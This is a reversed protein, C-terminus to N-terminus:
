VANGGVLQKGVQAAIVGGEAARRQGPQGLALALPAYRAHIPLASGIVSADYLARTETVVFDIRRYILARVYRGPRMALGM